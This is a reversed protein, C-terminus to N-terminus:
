WSAFEQKGKLVWSWQRKKQLTMGIGGYWLSDQQRDQQEPDELQGLLRMFATIMAEKKEETGILPIRPTAKLFGPPM